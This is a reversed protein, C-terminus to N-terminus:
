WKSSTATSTCMTRSYGYIIVDGVELQFHSSAYSIISAIGNALQSTRGRQVVEGNLKVTVELDKPDIGVAICPGVPAWTNRCKSVLRCPMTGDFKEFFWTNESFDNGISYGFVYEMAREEPINRGGKGIIVVLEGEYNLNTAELPLEIVDQPGAIASPFKAFLLPHQVASNRGAGLTNVAVGFVKRTSRPDVPSLLRVSDLHWTRENRRAKSQLPNSELEFVQDDVLEGFRIKSEAMFRVFCRKGEATATAAMAKSNSEVM